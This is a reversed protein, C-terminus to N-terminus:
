TEGEEMIFYGYVPSPKRSVPIQIPSEYALEDIAKAILYSFNEDFEVKKGEKELLGVKENVWEDIGKMNLFDSIEYFDVFEGVMPPIETGYRGIMVRYEEAGCEGRSIYIQAQFAPEIKPKKFIIDM